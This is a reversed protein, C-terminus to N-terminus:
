NIISISIPTRMMQIFCAIGFALMSVLCAIFIGDIIDEKTIKRREM